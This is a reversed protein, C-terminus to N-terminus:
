ETLKLFENYNPFIVNYESVLEDLGILFYSIWAKNEDMKAQKKM